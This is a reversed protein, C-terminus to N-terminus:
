IALVKIKVHIFVDFLAIVNVIILISVQAHNVSWDIVQLLVLRKLIRGHHIFWQIKYQCKSYLIHFAVCAGSRISKM